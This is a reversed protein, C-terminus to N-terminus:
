YKIYMRCSEARPNIRTAQSSYLPSCKSADIGIHVNYVDSTSYYGQTKSGNSTKWLAGYWTQDM